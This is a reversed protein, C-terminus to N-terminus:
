ADIDEALGADRVEVTFEGEGALEQRLGDRDDPRFRTRLCEHRVLLDGIAGLVERLVMGAPVQVQLAFNLVQTHPELVTLEGWVGRQAFTARTTGSRAGRFPVAVHTITTM